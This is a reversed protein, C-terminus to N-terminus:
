YDSGQERRRQELVVTLVPTVDQVLFAGGYGHADTVTEPVHSESLSANAMGHWGTMSDQTIPIINSTTAFHKSGPMLTLLPMFSETSKRERESEDRELEREILSESECVCVCM